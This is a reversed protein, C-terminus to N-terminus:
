LISTDRNFWNFEIKKLLKDKWNDKLIDTQTIKFLDKDGYCLAEKKNFDDMYGMYNNEYGIVEIYLKSESLYFDTRHKSKDTIFIDYKFDIYKELLWDGVKKELMSAVLQGNKLYVGNCELCRINGSRVDSTNFVRIHGCEKFQYTRRSSGNNNEAFGVYILDFAEADKKSITWFM